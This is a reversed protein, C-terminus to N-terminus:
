HGSHPPFGYNVVPKPILTGGYFSPYHFTWIKTKPIGLLRNVHLCPWFVSTKYYAIIKVYSAGLRNAGHNMKGFGENPNHQVSCSLYNEFIWLLPVKLVREM